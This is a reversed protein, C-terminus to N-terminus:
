KVRLSVLRIRKPTSAETWAIYATDGLFAARPVGAARANTTEGLTVIPGLPALQRAVITAPSGGELWVALAGGSHAVVDVRGIPAGGDIRVPAGFTKGGDSSLAAFVRAQEDAATFWAAAVADGRSDLQPGNVPCAKIHWGDAHLPAPKTWGKTSSHIIAIDRTEDASRDRYAIVTGGPGTTLATQCCDCVREDLVVEASLAGRRDIAAYRLLTTEEDGGELWVASAGGGPLPVLSTFGHEAKKGDRNLRAPATWSKGGDTSVAFWVDHAYGDGNKQLWQAYLTGRADAIVAPIDAWNVFFDDATRITQPASWARGDYRAFRLSASAGDGQEIWSLLLAGRADAFLFPESSGAPAPVAVDVVDAHAALAALLLLLAPIRTM